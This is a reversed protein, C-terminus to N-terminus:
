KANALLENIRSQADALAADIEKDGTVGATIEDNEIEQIAFQRKVAAPRAAGNTTLPALDARHPLAKFEASEAVSKRIPLHGTRSWQFDNDWLFKLFEYASKRQADSLDAKLVVWSHGDAWVRPSGPYLQPFPVVAYGNSLPAGSKRSEQDYTDVLWTGCIFV